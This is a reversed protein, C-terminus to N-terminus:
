TNFMEPFKFDQNINHARSYMARIGDNIDNRPYYKISGIAEAYEPQFNKYNGKENDFIYRGPIYIHINIYGKDKLYERFGLDNIVGDFGTDFYGKAQVGNLKNYADIILQM